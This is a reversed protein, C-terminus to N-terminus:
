CLVAPCRSRRCRLIHCAGELYVLKKCRQTILVRSTSATTPAVSTGGGGPFMEDHSSPFFRVVLQDKGFVLIAKWDEHKVYWSSMPSPTCFPLQHSHREGFLHKKQMQFTNKKKKFLFLFLFRESIYWRPQRVRHLVHVGALGVPHPYPRINGIITLRGLMPTLPTM